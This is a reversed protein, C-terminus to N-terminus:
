LITPALGVFSGLTGVLTSTGIFLYIFTGILITVYNVTCHSNDNQKFHLIFATTIKTNPERKNTSQKAM